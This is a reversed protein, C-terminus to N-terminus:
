IINTKFKNSIFDIKEQDLEKYKEKLKSCIYNIVVNKNIRNPYRELLKDYIEQLSESEPEKKLSIRYLDKMEDLIFDSWQYVNDLDFIDILKHADEYYYRSDNNVIYCLCIKVRDFYSFHINRRVYQKFVDNDFIQEIITRNDEINEFIIPFSNIIENNDKIM